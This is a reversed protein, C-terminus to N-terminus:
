RKQWARQHGYHVFRRVASKGGDYSQWGPIRRMIASIAYSDKKEMDALQKGFCECWIEANCVFEREVNGEAEGFDDNLWNRREYITMKDWTSPLKRDLYQAVLGERDDSEIANTQAELALAELEPDLYLKEGKKYLHLAEAWIQGVTDADLDWVKKSSSAGVQIPWFRRNGTVDRLFGDEANTTGVIICQRPHSEVNVGYAARYKDDTRSIFGKVTEVEIKRMGSLESIELVWYGQLKEAGSKDRMDTMSLADSFWKGALKAFITSKGVGQPGNLILATDFKIGPQYIRAVAAVLTKRIIARCYESDEAAMYDILLRDIRPIEDWPPLAELYEKIPHFPRQSAVAVLADRLKAPADINYAKSVYLRLNSFDADGWGQKVQQWPMNDAAFVNDSHLNYKINKLYRDHMCVLEFNRVSDLVRGKSNTELGALWGTGDDDFEQRSNELRQEALDIKVAEINSAFECMSLYSPLSNTNTGERIEDDLDGYKHLRLLDWANLLKGQVPDSAHHSYAFKSDYLVVGAQSEGLKYTYRGPMQSPEYIDRLYNDLVDEISHTRCFAGVIGKKTLPDEQRQVSSHLIETQRSSVPWSTTDRWDKYKALYANPDLLTGDLEKYVFEGDLSTSPWYMLRAPEYTTDDFLEIGIEKALMRAVAQYEDASVDRKLPIILRLRPKDVTHKHTSYIYAKFGSFMELEDVTTPLAYDMDLCLASRSLVCDKKRRGDKLEGAVFGGVDKIADQKLKPLKRYEAMTEATRTTQSLRKGFDALSMDVQKWREELRSNGICIKM